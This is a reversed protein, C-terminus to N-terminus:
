IYSEGRATMVVYLTAIEAELQQQALRLQQLKKTKEERLMCSQSITFSIPSTQIIDQFLNDM